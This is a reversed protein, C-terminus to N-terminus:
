PLADFAAIHQDGEPLESAQVIITPLLTLMPLISKMFTKSFQNSNELNPIATGGSDLRVNKVQVSPIRPSGIACRTGPIGMCPLKARFAITMSLLATFSVSALILVVCGPGAARSRISREWRALKEQAQSQGAAMTALTPELRDVRHITPTLDFLLKSNLGDKTIESENHWANAVANSVQWGDARAQNLRFIIQRSAEFSNHADIVFFRGFALPM